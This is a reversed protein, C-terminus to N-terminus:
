LNSLVFIGIFNAFFSLLIFDKKNLRSSSLLMVGFEDPLPSGLFIIGIWRKVFTNKLFPFTNVVSAIARTNVLSQIEQKVGGKLFKYMTLDAVVTGCAGLLSFLLSTNHGQYLMVSSAGTTFSFSYMYGLLLASFFGLYKTLAAVAISLIPALLLAAIYFLILVSLRKYKFDKM